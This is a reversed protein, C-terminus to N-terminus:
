ERRHEKGSFTFVFDAFWAEATAKTNDTDVFMGVASIREPARGFFRRYDDVVNRTEIQWAGAHPEGSRLVIMAVNASYPSAFSIDRPANAAWVYNIARTRLPLASPEFIVVVRAAYDDGRREREHFNEILPRRVKWRWRLQAAEPNRLFIERLLCSNAAKSVAHLVRKEEDQVVQYITPNAFLRQERWRTRWGPRFDDFLAIEGAGMEAFGSGFLFGWLALRRSWGRTEVAFIKGPM